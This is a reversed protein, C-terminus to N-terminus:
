GVQWGTPVGGEGVGVGGGGGGEGHLGVRERSSRGEGIEATEPGVGARVAGGVGARGEMGWGGVRAGGGM